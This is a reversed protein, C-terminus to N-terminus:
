AEGPAGPAVPEVSVIDDAAVVAVGEHPLFLAVLGMSVPQDLYHEPSHECELVSGSELTIRTHIAKM